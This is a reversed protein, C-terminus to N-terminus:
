DALDKASTVREPRVRILWEGPVGNRAGYEEARDAGMYRGGLITAWHRVADLDEIIEATGELLAFNFPPREDDVCIAVRPDRKITRGKVTDAGTTFMVSDDDDLAFWVPAVHPRGDKRTTAVKATHPPTSTLLAKVAADTLPNYPV